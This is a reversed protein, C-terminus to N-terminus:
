ACRPARHSVPYVRLSKTGCRVGGSSTIASSALVAAVNAVACIAPGLACMGAAIASMAGSIILNQDFANFAVYVGGYSDSGAGLRADRGPDSLVLRAGQTGRIVVTRTGDPTVREAEVAGAARAEAVARRFTAPTITTGSGGHAVAAPTRPPADAASAGPTGFLGGAILAASLSIGTLTSRFTSM